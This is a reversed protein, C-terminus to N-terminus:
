ARSSLRGPMRAASMTAATDLGCEVAARTQKTSAAEGVDPVVGLVQQRDNATFMYADNSTLM